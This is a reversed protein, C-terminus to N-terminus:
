CFLLYLANEHKERSLYELLMFHLRPNIQTIFLLSDCMKWQVMDTRDRHKMETFSNLFQPM